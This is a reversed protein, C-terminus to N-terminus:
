AASFSDLREISNDSLRVKLSEERDNFIVYITIDNCRYNAIKDRDALPTEQGNISGTVRINVAPQSTLASYGFVAWLVDKISADIVHVRNGQTQLVEARLLEHPFGGSIELVSFQIETHTCPYLLVLVITIPIFLM